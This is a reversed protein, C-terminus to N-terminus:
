QEKRNKEYFTIEDKETVRWINCADFCGSQVLDLKFNDKIKQFDDHLVKENGLGYNHIYLPYGRYLVRHYIDILNSYDYNGWTEKRSNRFEQHLSLPLLSYNGNSYFDIYYPIMSSIVVPFKENGQPPKAFYKNLELVSIYYWPTEAYKLNVMIASKLRLANTLSYFLFLSVLLLAIPLQRNTVPFFFKTLPSHRNAVPSFFKVFPSQRKNVFSWRDVVNFLHQWFLAFGILLTPIAHYLYRMDQSYFTSMFLISSVLMLILGVALIRTQKVFMAWLLGILAPIGIYQPVIPTDDWLFRMRLGGTMARLYEPLYKDMYSFSFWGGSMVTPANSKQPFISNYLTVLLTSGKASWEWWSFVLFFFIASFIHWKLGTYLEQTKNKNKSQVIESVIKVCYIFFYFGTLPISAYKTMYFLLCLTGAGISSLISVPRVLLWVAIMFLTLTLNESMALSPYWYIFYNTVYLFLTVFIILDSTLPRKDNTKLLKTLIQYFFLYSLLALIVNTFFAMRPDNYIYFLPLLVISYLPPVTTKVARGERIIEMDYGDVFSRAPNIYHITDPYPEFNPVLTRQSFPDRLLLALFVALLAFFHIHKKLIDPM